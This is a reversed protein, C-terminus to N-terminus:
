EYTKQLIAESIKKPDEPSPFEGLLEGSNSILYLSTSHDFKKTEEIYKFGIDIKKIINEAQADAISFGNILPHFHHVYKQVKELSDSPDVSIFVLNYSQLDKDKVQLEKLVQAILGLSMPCVDPCSSYGAYLLTVRNESHIYKLEESSLKPHNQSTLYFNPDEAKKEKKLNYYFLEFILFLIAFLIFLVRKKKLFNIM